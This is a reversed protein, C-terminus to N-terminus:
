GTYYNPSAIKITDYHGQRADESHTFDGKVWAIKDEESMSNWKDTVYSLREALADEFSGSDYINKDGLELSSGWRWDGGMLDDLIKLALRTKTDAKDFVLPNLTPKTESGGFGLKERLVDGKQALEERYASAEQKNRGNRLKWSDYAFIEGHLNFDVPTGTEEVFRDMDDTVSLSKVLSSFKDVNPYLVQETMDERHPVSYITATEGKKEPYQQLKRVIDQAKAIIDAGLQERIATM